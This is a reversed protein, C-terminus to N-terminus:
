PKDGQRYHMPMAHTVAMDGPRKDDPVAIIETRRRPADVGIYVLADGVLTPEGAAAM